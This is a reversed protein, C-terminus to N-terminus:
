IEEDIWKAIRSWTQGREPEFWDVSAVDFGVQTLSSQQREVKYERPACECLTYDHIGDKCVDLVVVRDEGGFDFYEGGGGGNMKGKGNADQRLDGKESAARSAARSRGALRANSNSASNSPPGTYIAPTRSGAPGLLRRNNAPTQMSQNQNTEINGNSPPATLSSEHEEENASQNRGNVGGEAEVHTNTAGTEETDKEKVATTNEGTGAVHKSVEAGRGPLAGREEESRNSRDMRQLEATHAEELKQMGEKSLTSGGDDYKKSGLHPIHENAKKLGGGVANLAGGAASLAGGTAAVVHHAVSENGAEAAPRGAENSRLSKAGNDTARKEKGVSEERLETWGDEPLPLPTGAPTNQASPWLVIEYDRPRPYNLRAATEYPDLGACSADVSEAHLPVRM